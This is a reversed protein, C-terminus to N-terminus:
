RCHPCEKKVKLWNKICKKCWYQLCCPCAMPHKPPDHVYCINCLYSEKQSRPTSNVFIVHTNLTNVKMKAYQKKYKNKSLKKRKEKLNDEDWFQKMNYLNDPYSVCLHLFNAKPDLQWYVSKHILILNIKNLYKHIFNYRNKTPINLFGCIICSALALWGGGEVSGSFIGILIPLIMTLFLRVMLGKIKTRNIYELVKEVEDIDYNPQPIFGKVRYGGSEHKFFFNCHDNFPVKLM